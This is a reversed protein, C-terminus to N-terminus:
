ATMSAPWRQGSRILRAVRYSAERHVHCVLGFCPQAAAFRQADARATLTDSPQGSQALTFGSALGSAALFGIDSPEAGGCSLLIWYM